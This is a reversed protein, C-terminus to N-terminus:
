FKMLKTMPVLKLIYHRTKLYAPKGILKSKLNFVNIIQVIAVTEQSDTLFMQYRPNLYVAPLVYPNWLLIEGRKLFTDITFKDFRVKSGKYFTTRHPKRNPDFM